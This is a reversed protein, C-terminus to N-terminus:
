VSVSECLVIRVCEYEGCECVSVSDCVCMRVCEKCECVNECM